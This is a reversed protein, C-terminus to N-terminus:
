KLNKEHKRREAVMKLLGKRSSNDKKHKKLHSSLENIRENLIAVQVKTSGTDTDHVQATKIVKEKKKKSLM